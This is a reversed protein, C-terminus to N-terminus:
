GGVVVLGGVWGDVWGHVGVETVAGLLVGVETVAGLEYWTHYVCRYRVATTGYRYNTGPVYMLFVPSM